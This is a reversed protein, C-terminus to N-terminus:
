GPVSGAAEGELDEFALVVDDGGEGGAGQVSCLARAFAPIM